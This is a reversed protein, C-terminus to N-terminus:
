VDHTANWDMVDVIHNVAARLSMKADDSLRYFLQCGVTRIGKRFRVVTTGLGRQLADERQPKTDEVETDPGDGDEKIIRVSVPLWFMFNEHGDHLFQILESWLPTDPRRKISANPPDIFVFDANTVALEDSVAPRPHIEYGTGGYTEMLNAIVSPSIDWFAFASDTDHYKCLDHVILSSGPYVGGHLTPRGKLYWEHWLKTHPNDDLQLEHEVVKGVGSPWENGHILPSYAYGAFTDAYRFTEFRKASLLSDIAAILAVHKVVDGENGAKKHHDYEM